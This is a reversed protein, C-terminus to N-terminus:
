KAPASAAATVKPASALAAVPADKARGLSADLRSPGVVSADLGIHNLATLAWGVAHMVHGPRWGNGGKRYMLVRGWTYLSALGSISAFAAEWTVVQAPSIRVQLFPAM